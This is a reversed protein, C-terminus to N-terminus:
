RWAVTVIIYLSCYVGRKPSPDPDAIEADAVVALSRVAVAEAYVTGNNRNSNNNSSRNSSNLHQNADTNPVTAGVDGTDGVAADDDNDNVANVDGGPAKHRIPVPQRRPVLHDYSQMTNKYDITRGDILRPTAPKTTAAAAAPPPPSKPQQRQQPSRVAVLHDFSQLTNKSNMIEGNPLLFKAEDDAPTSANTVAAAAAATNATNTTTYPTIPVNRDSHYANNYIESPTALTISTNVLPTASAATGAVKPIRECAGGRDIFATPPNANARHQTNTTINNNNHVGTGNGNAEDDSGDVDILEHRKTHNLNSM